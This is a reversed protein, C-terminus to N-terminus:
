RGAADVVRGSDIVATKLGTPRSVLVVSAFNRVHLDADKSPAVVLTSMGGISVSANDVILRALNVTGSGKMEVAVDNVRGAADVAAKGETSVFLNEQDYGEISLRSDGDLHFRSIAPATVVLELMAGTHLLQDHIDGHSVVLTSVSRHPGRAVVKGNGPAQVYRVVSRVGLTLSTSDDWPIERTIIEQNGSDNATALAYAGSFCGASIVAAAIALLMLRTTSNM